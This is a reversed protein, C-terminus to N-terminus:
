LIIERKLLRDEVIGIGIFENNTNIAGILLGGQCQCGLWYVLILKDSVFISASEYDLTKIKNDNIYLKNNRNLLLPGSCIANSDM